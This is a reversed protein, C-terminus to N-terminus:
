VGGARMRICELYAAEDPPRGARQADWLSAGLCEFVEHEAAHRDGRRLSLREFANRIGKPRDTAVQERVALHMGLHLFPNTQGDEPTWDRALSAEDEFVPHYEPHQEIVSAIQDALPELPLGQRRRQWADQYMRRLQNRDSGFLM